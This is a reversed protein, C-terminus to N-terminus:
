GPMKNASVVCVNRPFKQPGRRFDFFMFSSNMEGSKSKKSKSGSRRDEEDDLIDGLVDKEYANPGGSQSEKGGLIVEASVSEVPDEEEGEEEDNMRNNYRDNWIDSQSRQWDM